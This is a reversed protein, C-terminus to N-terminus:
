PSPSSLQSITSTGPANELEEGPASGVNDPLTIGSQITRTVGFMDTVFPAPVSTSALTYAGSLPGHGVVLAFLGGVLAAWPEKHISFSVLRRPTTRLPARCYTKVDGFEVAASEHCLIVVSTFPHDIPDPPNKEYLNLRSRRVTLSVILFM